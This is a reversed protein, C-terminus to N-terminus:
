SCNTTWTSVSIPGLAALYRARAEEGADTHRRGADRRGAALAALRSEPSSPDGFFVSRSPSSEDAKEEDICTRGCPPQRV